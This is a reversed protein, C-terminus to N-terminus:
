YDQYWFGVAQPHIGNLRVPDHKGCLLMPLFSNPINLGHSYIYFQSEFKSIVCTIQAGFYKLSDVLKQNSEWQYSCTLRFIDFKFDVVTPAFIGSVLGSVCGVSNKLVCLFVPFINRVLPGPTLGIMMIIMM